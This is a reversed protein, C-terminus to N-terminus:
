QLIRTSPSTLYDSAWLTKFNDITTPQFYWIEQLTGDKHGLYAIGNAPYVYLNFTSNPSNEYLVNPAVGYTNTIYDAKTTDTASVVEKILYVKGNQIIAITNRYQSTSKYEDITQGGQTTTKLPTGLAKNLDSESSIGPVISKFSATQAIPTPTTSPQLRVKQLYYDGVIAVFVIIVIWIWSNKKFFEMIKTM